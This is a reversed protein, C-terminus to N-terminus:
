FNIEEDTDVVDGCADCRWHVAGTFGTEFTDCTAFTICACTDCWGQAAEEEEAEIDEPPMFRRGSMHEAWEDPDFYYSPLTPLPKHFPM